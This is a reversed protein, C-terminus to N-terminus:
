YFSSADAGPVIGGDKGTRQLQGLRLSFPLSSNAPSYINAICGFLVCSLDAELFQERRVALLSCVGKSRSDDYILGYM